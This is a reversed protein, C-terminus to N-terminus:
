RQFAGGSPSNSGHIATHCNLCQRGMTTSTGPGGILGSHGGAGHCEFCLRPQSLKLSAKNISGHPDHCNDCNERVPLHEFLFPGRKEAHCTYCTENISDKRLLAETFSGHPNHCDSCVMKGERVPMHSASFMQARRDKHCQFCTDPEFATSLAFKRSVQKMVTHCNTCMLGRTDHTSGAWNTRDGREHCALCIANNEAATRSRDDPRFTIIGGVGRGGGANVHASGPGHCGECELKGKQTKAIRGMLTHNFLETQVSHCTACVKSGVVTAEVTTSPKTGGAVPGKSSPAAPSLQPNSGKQSWERLADFLSDAEALKLPIPASASQESGIRDNLARLAAYAADTSKERALGDSIQKIDVSPTRRADISRVFDSLEPFYNSKINTEGADAMVTCVIFTLASIPLLLQVGRACVSGRAQRFM